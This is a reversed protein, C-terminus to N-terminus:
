PTSRKSMAVHHVPQKATFLKRQLFNNLITSMYDRFISIHKSISITTSQLNIYKNKCFHNNAADSQSCLPQKRM